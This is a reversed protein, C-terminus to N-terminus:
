AAEERCFFELIKETSKGRQAQKVIAVIVARAHQQRHQDILQSLSLAKQGNKSQQVQQFQLYNLALFVVSFFRDIGELKRMRLDALGLWGKLYLYDVEVSWRKTYGQLIAKVPLKTDTCLFYEPRKDRHHRKSIIVTVTGPLGRLHGKLKYTWYTRHGDASSLVMRTWSKQWVGRAIRRLRKGDFRRNGKISCIVRFGQAQCYKILKNSAYWSDFMVCVKRDRLYESWEHLLEKVLQYKTKFVLKNGPTRKRNLRKVTKERLYLRRGATFSYNGLHVHCTVFCMAWVSAGTNHDKYWDFGELGQSAEPKTLLSDDFSLHLTATAPNEALAREFMFAIRSKEVLTQEWPSLRFFDAIAYVDTEGYHTRQLASLTKEDEECTLLADTMNILHNMQPKSFPLHMQRIFQRLAPSPNIIKALCM